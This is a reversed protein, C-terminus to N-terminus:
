QPLGHQSQPMASLGTGAVGDLDGRSESSSSLQRRCNKLARLLQNADQYRNEQKKDLCRDILEAFTTSIDPRVVRISVHPEYITDMLTKMVADGRFPACGTLLCYLTAGMGFVDSRKDATKADLAQEPAMYGPTGMAAQAGTLSQSSSEESRALGLDMLKSNKLDFSKESRSLYPVMINEPKLDRHVINQSHAANLGECAAICVDLTDAETYGSDGKELLNKLIQGSTRGAVYEMVLFFLGSEENVDLVNVLHPSHVQAAIQAERFFRRVMGPDQEALHFPLVKVAVESRLRPHIGYYVAGMGGQGIKALLPIKNLSPCPKGNIEIRPADKLLRESSLDQVAVDSIHTMSSQDGMITPSAIYVNKSSVSPPTRMPGILTKDDGMPNPNKMSSPTLDSIANSDGNQSSNSKEVAM